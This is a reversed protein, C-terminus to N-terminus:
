GRAIVRRFRRVPAPAGDCFAAPSPFHFVRGWPRAEHRRRECTLGEVQRISDRSRESGGLRTGTLATCWPYCRFPSPFHSPSTFRRTPGFPWGYLGYVLSSLLFIKRSSHSGWLHHPFPELAPWQFKLTFM